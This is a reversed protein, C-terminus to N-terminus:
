PGGTTPSRRLTRRYRTIDTTLAREEKQLKQIEATTKNKYSKLGLEVMDRLGQYLGLLTASPSGTNVGRIAM